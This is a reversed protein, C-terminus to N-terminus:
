AAIGAKSSFTRLTSESHSRYDNMDAELCTDRIAASLAVLSDDYAGTM